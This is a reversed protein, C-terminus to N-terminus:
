LSMTWLGTQFRVCQCSKNCCMYFPVCLSGVDYFLKSKFFSCVDKKDICWQDWYPFRYLFRYFPVSPCFDRIMADHDTKKSTEIIFKSVFYITIDWRATIVNNILVICRDSDIPVDNAQRKLWCRMTQITHKIHISQTVSISTKKNTWQSIVAQKQKLTPRVSAAPARHIRTM